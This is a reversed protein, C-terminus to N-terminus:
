QRRTLPLKALNQHPSRFSHLRAKRGIVLQHGTASVSCAVTSAVAAQRPSGKKPGNVRQKFQACGKCGLGHLEPELPPAGADGRSQARPNRGLRLRRGGGSEGRPRTSAAMSRAALREKGSKAPRQPVERLFSATSWQPVESLTHQRPSRTIAVVLVQM